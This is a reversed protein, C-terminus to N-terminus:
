PTTFAHVDPATQVLPSSAPEVSNTFPAKRWRRSLTKGLAMSPKEIVVWSVPVILLLLPFMYPIYRGTGMYNSSTGTFLEQWLYLAYSTIGIIRMPPWCLFRSFWTEQELTFMLFLCVAPALALTQYVNMKSGHVQVVSTALMVTALLLVIKPSLNRAFHRVREEHLSLLVGWSIGAFGVVVGASLLYVRTSWALLLAMTTVVICVAAFVRGRWRQPTLWLATPFILYFQEEVSLSWVHGTLWGSTLPHFDVVLAAARALEHRTVVVLHFHALIVLTALYLYFPPLVRVFRRVYFARFSFSGYRQEEILLLRCIIYGSIVFLIELGLHGVLNLFDYFGPVLRTFHLHANGFLHGGVVAIAAIARWGDLQEIRRGPSNERTSTSLRSDM